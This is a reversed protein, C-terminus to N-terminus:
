RGRVWRLLRCSNRGGKMGGSASSSSQVGASEAAGKGALQPTIQLALFGLDRLVLFLVLAVATGHLKSRRSADPTLEPTLLPASPHSFPPLSPGLTCGAYLWLPPSRPPPPCSFCSSFLSYQPWRQADFLNPHIQQSTSIVPLLFLLVFM